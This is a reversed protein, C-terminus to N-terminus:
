SGQSEGSAFGVYDDLFWEATKRMLVTVTDQDFVFNMKLTGFYDDTLYCVVLLSNELVWGASAHCDYGRGLPIGIRKGYYKVEPFEQRIQHGFGFKLTHKGTRNEYHLCGEHGTQAFPGDTKSDHKEQVAADNIDQGADEHKDQASADNAEKGCVKQMDQGFKFQMSSIGMDNEALLFTKGNIANVLPTSSEGQVTLLSLGDIQRQLVEQGEQNEPLVNGKVLHPYIESWLLRFIQSSDTSVAQTDATTVLIFDQEPLCIAFQSGMGRCAFGNHRTCWFQYGYGFQSEADSNEVYNDIQRSTAATIYDEPILQSDAIKGRNMCVLAFKMLDRSTCIVGSGGWEHGCPTEVCWINDSMGLPDLLRPRLYELFEMGTIQRVIVLLMVTASTNYSFIKGPLHSPPTRFFTDVWDPDNEGYTNVDHPTAMMLLDRVTTQLIWPHLEASVKDPFFSAARDDLRLKGEGILIGIAVSVFSKSTSYMRHMSTKDFPKWYAEVALKGHRLMLVSHMCLDAEHLKQLFLAAAESPIGISEPTTTPFPNKEAMEM